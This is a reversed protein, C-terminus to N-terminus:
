KRSHKQQISAFGIIEMKYHNPLFQYQGKAELGIEGLKWAANVRVEPNGHQLKKVLEQVKQEQTQCGSIWISVSSILLFMATTPKLIEQKFIMILKGIYINDNTLFRKDM